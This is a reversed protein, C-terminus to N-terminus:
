RKAPPCNHRKEMLTRQFEREVARLRFLQRPTLVKSFSKAYKSEIRAIENNLKYQAEIASEYDADTAADGKQRISKEITRVKKEANYRESEKEDYLKFFEAKQADTIDLKKALYDHKYEKMKQFWETKTARKDKSKSNTTDALASMPLLLIAVLLIKLLKTMM